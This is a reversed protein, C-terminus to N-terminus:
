DPYPLGALELLRRDKYYPAVKLHAPRLTRHLVGGEGPAVQRIVDIPVLRM